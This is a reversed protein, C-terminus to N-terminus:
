GHAEIVLNYATAVAISAHGFGAEGFTALLRAPGAQAGLAQGGESISHPVCLASSGVYFVGAVPNELNAELTDEAYPEVAVVQGGPRLAARAHALAGAPDGMDHVADFFLVLDYSGEYSTSDSEHFQVRDTVGAEVAAAKAQRISEDHYDVGVFTSNPFAEALLITPVGLGCGVDLVRIGAELRAILGPVAPFWETLLSARYMTAYFRAVSTFVRSDHEHWALGDGTTYANALKDVSAWVGAILEFGATLNAPSAEESLVAAAEPSLTFAESAADYSVYGNAAQASLWEQVYRRAVGSREALADITATGQNGGTSSSALARWLGLRDGLHVLIANYAAAQDGQVKAVFEELRGFDLAPANLQATM